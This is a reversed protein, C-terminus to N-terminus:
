NGGTIASCLGIDNSFACQPNDMRLGFNKVAFLILISIFVLAIITDLKFLEKM